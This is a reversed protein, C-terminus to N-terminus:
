LDQIKEVPRLFIQSQQLVLFEQNLFNSNRSVEDSNELEPNSIEHGFLVLSFVLGCGELIWGMGLGIRDQLREWFNKCCRYKNLVLFTDKRLFFRGTADWLLQEVHFDFIINISDGQLRLMFLFLFSSILPFFIIAYVLSYINSCWSLLLCWCWSLREFNQPWRFLM